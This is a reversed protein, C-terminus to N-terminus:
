MRIYYNKSIEKIYGKIELSVLTELVEQPSLGTEEMIQGVNRPYLVVSSYVLKELSELVKKAEKKKEHLIEGSIGLEELLIEPSILIGAGQRILQNCGRSLASDVPGPLAYVDRGQELAM